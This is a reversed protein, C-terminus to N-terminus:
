VECSLTHSENLSKKEVGAGYCRYLGGLMTTTRTSRKLLEKYLRKKQALAMYAHRIEAASKIRDASPEPQTKIVAIEHCLKEQNILSQELLKIDRKELAAIATQFENSLARVRALHETHSYKGTTDMEQM